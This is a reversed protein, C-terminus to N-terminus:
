RSRLCRKISWKLIKWFIPYLIQILNSNDIRSLFYDRDCKAYARFWVSFFCLGLVWYTLFIAMPVAHPDANGTRRIVRLVSCPVVLGFVHRHLKRIAIEASREQESLSTASISLDHIRYRYLVVPLNALKYGNEVFSVWLHLDQARRVSEDYFFPRSLDAACKMMISGHILANAFLMETQVLFPDTVPQILIEEGTPTFGSGWTGCVACDPHAEMYEIQREFRRPLSIDDADMRAIYKGRARRLGINLSKTLGLNTENDVLVIRPDKYSLIIDRGCDISGDNVIIFEFDTYTQQLISDIAEKLYAEANYVSMVVSIMPSTM